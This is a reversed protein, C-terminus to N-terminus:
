RMVVYGIVVAGIVAAVAGLKLSVKKTTAVTGPQSEHLDTVFAQTPTQVTARAKAAASKEAQNIAQASASRQALDNSTVYDMNRGTIADLQVVGRYHTKGTVTSVFTPNVKGSAISIRTSQDTGTLAAKGCAFYAM